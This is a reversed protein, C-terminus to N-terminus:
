RIYFWYSISCSNRKIKKYRLHCANHAAGRYKGAYHCHDRVKYKENDYDFSFGKKWIHCVKQERHTKKKDYILSIM